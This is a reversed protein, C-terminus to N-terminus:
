QCVFDSTHWVGRMIYSMFESFEIIFRRYQPTDSIVIIVPVNERAVRKKWVFYGPILQGWVLNVANNEAGLIVLWYQRTQMLNSVTEIGVKM